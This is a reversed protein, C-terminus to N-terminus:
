NSVQFKVEGNNLFCLKNFLKLDLPNPLRIDQVDPYPKTLPDYSRHVQSIFVIIVGRERAFSRLAGVQDALAPNERRQDLLQLYDIVILIGRPASAMEEIIYGANIGDSCDLAFLDNFQAPEVGLARLRDLVDKETYELTYFAARKGSKMAEVALELSMLTKGQGPRAAVLVLDGPLLRTLLKGAPSIASQRAALLSWASYGEQQAIRDLAEHLPIGGERSLLKAKRKLQYIPASLTM